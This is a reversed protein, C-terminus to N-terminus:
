NPSSFYGTIYVNTNDTVIRNPKETGKGAIKRAWSLTGNPEYKALYIDTDTETKDISLEIVGNKNYFNLQSTIVGTIYVNTNDTVISTSEITGGVIQRAWSLTGNSLYKAIYTNTYGNLNKNLTLETDGNQQLFNLSLDIFNGTVYYEGM